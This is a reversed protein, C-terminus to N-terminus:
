YTFPDIMIEASRATVTEWNQMLYAELQAPDVSRATQLRRAQGFSLLGIILGLGTLVKLWPFSHGIPKLKAMLREELEPQAPPPDLRYTRLFQVLTDEDKM